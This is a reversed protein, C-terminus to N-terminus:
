PSAAFISIDKGERREVRLSMGTQMFAIFSEPDSASFVGSVLRNALSADAIHLQLRNYRNFQEVVESVSENEFILRGEAWALERESHVKRVARRPDAANVTIQENATLAVSEEASNQSNHEAGRVTVKGELVTVVVGQKRRDVGFSTGLVRVVTDDARVIFPRTSDKAVRFLARGRDLSVVRTQESFEVRLRTQPDVQVVSGDGLAVERREGRETDIVQGQLIPLLLVGVIAVVAVSAALAATWVFSRKMRPADSAAPHMPHPNVRAPLAVVESREVPKDSVVNAWQQFQELEGHVRAIRLMEAIHTASERLWDVFQEREARSLEQEQMRTWWDAAEACARQRREIADM